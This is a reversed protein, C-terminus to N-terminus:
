ISYSIQLLARIVANTKFKGGWKYARGDEPVSVIGLLADKSSCM